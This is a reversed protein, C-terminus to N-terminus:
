ASPAYRATSTVKCPRLVDAKEALLKEAQEDSMEAVKATMEKEDLNVVRAGLKQKIAFEDYAIETM